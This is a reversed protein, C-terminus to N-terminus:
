ERLISKQQVQLQHIYRQIFATSDMPLNLFAAGIRVLPRQQGMATAYVSRIQLAIDV